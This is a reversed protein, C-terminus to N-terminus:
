SFRLFAVFITVSYKFSTFFIKYVFTYVPDSFASLALHHFHLISLPFFYLEERM